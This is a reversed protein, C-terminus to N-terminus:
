PGSNQKEKEEGLGMMLALGLAIVLELDDGETLLLLVILLLLLDGSDWDGLKLGRLASTLGKGEGARSFLSWLGEKGGLLSSRGMGGPGVRSQVPHQAADGTGETGPRGRHATSEAPIYETDDPIYRNYVREM